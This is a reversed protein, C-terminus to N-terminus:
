WYITIKKIRDGDHQPIIDISSVVFGKKLLYSKTVTVLEEVIEEHFDCLPLEKYCRSEWGTTAEPTYWNIPGVAFYAKSYDCPFDCFKIEFSVERKIATKDNLYCAKFYKDFTGNAFNENFYEIIERKISEQLGSVEMTKKMFDDYLNM